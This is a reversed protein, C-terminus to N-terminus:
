IADNKEEKWSGFGGLLNYVEKFGLTSMLEMTKSSRGGSQCYVLVPVNPDLKKIEEEFTDSYYDINIAGPIIGQEVEELTRVDLIIENNKDSALKKFEIVDVDETILVSNGKKNSSESCGILVLIILFYLVKKM